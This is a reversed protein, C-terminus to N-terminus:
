IRTAKTTQVKLTKETNCYLVPHSSSFGVTVSGGRGSVKLMINGGARIKVRHHGETKIGTTPVGGVYTKGSLPGALAAASIGLALALALAVALMRHARNRM